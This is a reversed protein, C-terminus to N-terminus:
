VLYWELIEEGKKIDRITKGFRDVNHKDEHPYSSNCFSPLHSLYNLGNYLRIIKYNPDDDIFNKNILDLVPEPLENLRNKPIHFIGTGNSWKSFIYTDKPIDMLAFVGIGHIQSPRLETLVNTKLHYIVEDVLELNM